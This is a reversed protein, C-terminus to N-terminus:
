VATRDGARLAMMDNTIMTIKRRDPPRLATELHRDPIVRCTRPPDVPTGRADARSSASQTSASCAPCTHNLPRTRSSLCLRCPGSCRRNHPSRLRSGRRPRCSPRPCRRSGCSPSALTGPVFPSNSWTSPRIANDGPDPRRPRTVSSTRMAGRREEFMHLGILASVSTGSARCARRPRSTLDGSSHPRGMSVVQNQGRGSDVGYPACCVAEVLRVLNDCQGERVVRVIRARGTHSLDVDAVGDAVVLITM